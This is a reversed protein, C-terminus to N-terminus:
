NYLLQLYVCVCTFEAVDTTQPASMAFACKQAESYKHTDLSHIFTHIQTYIKHIHTDTHINLKIAM